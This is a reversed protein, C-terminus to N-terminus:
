AYLDVEDLPCRDDDLLLQDGALPDPRVTPEHEKAEDREVDCAYEFWACIGTATAKPQRGAHM